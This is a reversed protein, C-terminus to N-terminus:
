AVFGDQWSARAEITQDVVTLLHERSVPKILYNTVGQKLLTVALEVDPYGTLVIVAISPYHTRFYEIAEVGNIRPMHIDCLIVSVRLPNDGDNLTRIAELGDAAEVVEYGAKELNLHILHRIQAEDDVVLVRGFRGTLSPPVAGPM